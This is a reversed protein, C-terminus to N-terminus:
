RRRRAAADPCVRLETQREPYLAMTVPQPMMSPPPEDLTTSQLVASFLADRKPDGMTGRLAVGRVVGSSAIWLSFVLRGRGSIIEARRCLVKRIGTQIVAFYRAYRRDAAMHAGAGLSAPEPSIVLTYGNSGSPLALLSTGLLLTNLAAVSTFYGKITTSRRGREAAGDYFVEKGTIVSYADLASALPQAPIDFIQAATQGEPGDPDALGITVGGVSSFFMLCLASFFVQRDLFKQPLPKRRLHDTIKFFRLMGGVL